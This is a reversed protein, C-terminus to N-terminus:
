VHLETLNDKGLESKNLNFENDNPGTLENRKKKKRM